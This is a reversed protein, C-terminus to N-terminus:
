LLRCGYCLSLFLTVCHGGSGIDVDIEVLPSVVVYGKKASFVTICHFQPGQLKRYCKDVSDFDTFTVFAFGKKKGTEKDTFTEIKDIPGFQAFFTQMDQESIQDRLGGVFIKNVTTRDLSTQEQLAYLVEDDYLYIYM